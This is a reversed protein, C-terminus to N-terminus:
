TGIHFAGNVTCLAEIELFFLPEAEFFKLLSDFVQEWHMVRLAIIRASQM